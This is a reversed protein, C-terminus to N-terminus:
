KKPRGKREEIQAAIVGALSAFDKTLREATAIVAGSGGAKRLETTQWDLQRLATAVKKELKRLETLKPDAALAQKIESALDVKERVSAEWKDRRREGATDSRSKHRSPQGDVWAIAEHKAAEVTDYADSFYPEDDQGVKADCFKWGGDQEFVTLQRNHYVTTPNGGASPSWKPGRPFLWDLLGM